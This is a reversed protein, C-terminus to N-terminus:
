LPTHIYGTTLFFFFSKIFNSDTNWGDAADRAENPPLNQCTIESLIIDHDGRDDLVVKICPPGTVSM